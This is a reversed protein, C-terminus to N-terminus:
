PRPPTVSQMWMLHCVQDGHTVIAWQWQEEDRDRGVPGGEERLCLLIFILGTLLEISAEVHGPSLSDCGQPRSDPALLAHGASLCDFGRGRAGSLWTTFASAVNKFSICLARGSFVRVILFSVPRNSIHLLDSHDPGFRLAAVADGSADGSASTEEVDLGLFPLSSGSCRRSRASPPTHPTPFSATERYCFLALHLLM